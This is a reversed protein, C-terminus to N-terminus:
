NGFLLRIFAFSHSLSHGSPFSHSVWIFHSWQLQYHLLLPTLTSHNYWSSICVLLLVDREKVWCRRKKTINMKKIQVCSFCQGVYKLMIWNVQKAKKFCTRILNNQTRQTFYTEIFQHYAILHCSKSFEYNTTASCKRTIYYHNM